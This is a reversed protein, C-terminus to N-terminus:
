ETISAPDLTAPHNDWLQFVPLHRPHQRLVQFIHVDSWQVEYSSSVHYLAPFISVM